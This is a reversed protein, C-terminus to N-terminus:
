RHRDTFAVVRGQQPGRAEIKTEPGSSCREFLDSLFKEPLHFENALTQFSGKRGSTVEALKRIARPREKRLPEFEPEELRWGKMSMQKMLYRYQRDSVVQLDRARRALGQMSVQWKKKLAALRFLNLRESRLEEVIANAPMLLESAFRYAETELEQTGGSFNRHLALHGLEHALSMRMRDTAKGVVMGIVPCDRGPGAWAAFADCDKLEPLPIVIVGLREVSRILDPVPGESLRMAERVNRATEIADTGVPLRVPILSARASLGLILEFAVEAHAHAQQVVRRGIGAKARFLLSGRPFEPPNPQRFFASPMHLESSLAELLDASPQKTGREMHAVMTQDVGVAESVAQQTLGLLERAQRLRRGNLPTLRIEFLTEQMSPAKRREGMTSRELIM